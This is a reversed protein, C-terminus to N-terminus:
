RPSTSEVAQPKFECDCRTHFFNNSSNSTRVDQWRECFVHGYTCSKGASYSGSFTAMMLDLTSNASSSSLVKVDYQEPDM